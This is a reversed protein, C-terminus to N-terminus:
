TGGEFRASCGVSSQQVLTQSEFPDLLVDVQETSVRVAHSNESLGRAGTGDHM